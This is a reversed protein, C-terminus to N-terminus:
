QQSELVKVASDIVPDDNPQIDDWGAEIQVDPKVGSNGIEDGNPLKFSTTEVFIRSGDPLYFTSSTEMAGPTTAGIITARKNAQLTAALIEPFGQTNSGVLIVLPLTQSGAVDQGTVQLPQSDTRSYFEGIPGNYFLTSLSELPWDTSRGAIRLDLILGELKQNTTLTQFAQLVDQGLTSYSIAPFLMYGYNTGPVQSAELKATSTLKGRQVDVPRKAKGPSQVTLTVTSGSPGRVREVAQIGEDLLVPDGDIAYISDHAKLGAKEAPSGAMIALLIIHPEPKPNFGVFAGIGEYTSFDTIDGDIRETRSQYLLSGNPLDTELGKLMSQFEDDTLGKDIRSQYTEHLAKWDVGSSDFHIYSNQLNTWLADFTRTQHEQLSYQPGYEGSAPSDELPLLGICASLGLSLLLVLSLIVANKKKM